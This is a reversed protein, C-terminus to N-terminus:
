HMLSKLIKELVSESVGLQVLLAVITGITLWGSGKAVSETYKDLFLNLRKKAADSSKEIESQATVPGSLAAMSRIALLNDNLRRLETVLNRIDDLYARDDFWLDPPPQNHHRAPDYDLAEDIATIVLRSYFIAQPVSKVVVRGKKTRVSASDRREIYAALAERALASKNTGQAAALDNLKGMLEPSLNTTVRPREDHRMIREDYVAQPRRMKTFSEEM